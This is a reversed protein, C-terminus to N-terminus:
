NALEVLDTTLKVEDYEGIIVSAQNELSRSGENWYGSHDESDTTMRNAGFSEDTPITWWNDGLGVIKGGLGVNDDGVPATMAWTHDAGVRLDEARDVQVGPSGVLVLDDTALPGKGEAKAADGILTTGYSHGITTTHGSEGTEARHAAETGDLFDRLIPAGAAAYEDHRAEPDLDGKDFPYASRPADYDFWTITSVDQGPAFAHSVQWLRDSRTLDTEIGGLTTGTGPVYVATHDATDPNGNAVIVKGDGEGAPSFGLLYAEPLGEKGTADFRKQITEMGQLADTLRLRDDGYKANWATWEPNAVLSRGAPVLKKPEPPIANLATQYEGRTEALVTRNAEDRVAAPLGNMAGVSAPHMAAYDAREQASLGQWWEANEKPSGGKPPETISDLYDDAGKLVGQMDKQADAWDGHSVKLDDDAKLARLKPAWKADAETAEQLAEAIRNAYGQAIAHNPNPNVSNAQRQLAEALNSGDINAGGDASGGPAKGDTKAEAAPYSVSGDAGVTFKSSEADAIAERLKKQAAHLDHALGNLATSILGCEVQTYHFNRSLRQLQRIASGATPGELSDRMKFIIENDISDKANSAMESTNRYGDAADSFESLKLSKLTQFDM